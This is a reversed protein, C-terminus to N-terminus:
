TPAETLALRAPSVAAPDVGALSAPLANGLALAACLAGATPATQIGYGGQGAAWVFGPVLPDHGIVCEGDAVFSRLGAWVHRPRRVTLTTMREIADIAIAIDLEEAQVDHPAVPDANFPSGLLLGADPKVYFEHAADMFMPWGGTAMGEPATFLLASRRKPVLGIPAAGALAGVADAWAGAANVVVPARFEGAGTQVCWEGGTRRLAQVGAGCVVQGGRARVGRLFGQLLADVDIDTADEELVAGLLGEPRLVPVLELTEAPTLRRAGASVSRVLAEHAALAAAGGEHAFLLAGRPTLLPHEAFGPPPADFFPRSALTLARVQPPGYSAMYLAASRGTSHYGPQSELELVTVRATHSLWWAASAGAIGGGIVLFDSRSQM